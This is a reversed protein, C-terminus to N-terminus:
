LKRWLQQPPKNDPTEAESDSDSDVFPLDDGNTCLVDRVKSFYGGDYERIKEAIKNMVERIHGRAFKENTSEMSILYNPSGCLIISVPHGKSKAHNIGCRLASKIADIGDYGYCEVSIVGSFHLKRAVFRKDVASLMAQVAKSDTSLDSIIEPEITARSLSLYAESSTESIKWVIESYLYELELGSEMAAEKVAGYIAKSIKFKRICEDIESQWLRSKSLEVNSKESVIVEMPYLQGLIMSKRLDRQRRTVESCLIIGEHNDYEPLQVRFHTEEYSVPRAMVISGVHPLKHKHFRCHHEM